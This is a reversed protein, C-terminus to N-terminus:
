DCRSAAPRADNQFLGEAAIEFRGAGEVFGDELDEVLLVDIADIVVEALLRHLVDQDEAEGVGDELRHPVAVVDLVHLDGGGFGEADLAARGKVFLGTRQAVHHGVVQQLAHREGGHLRGDGEIGVGHALLLHLDEAADTGHGDFCTAALVTRPWYPGPWM